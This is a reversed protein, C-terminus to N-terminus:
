SITIFTMSYGTNNSLGAINKIYVIDGVQQFSIMPYVAPFLTNNSTITLSVPLIGRVNNKLTSKFKVESIPQGSDNTTFTLTVIDQALNTFDINKNLINRVQEIHSNIPLALQGILDHYKQPFDEKAIRKFDPVRGM